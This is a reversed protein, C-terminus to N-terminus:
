AIANRARLRTFMENAFLEGHNKLLERVGTADIANVSHHLNVTMNGGGGSMTPVTPYVHGPVTPVFLEPRKEGVVFAQGPTVDGGGQLGGAIGTIFGGIPGGIAGGLAMLAKMLLLKAIAQIIAEEIQQLVQIFSGRGTVIFRALSATFGDMAHAAETGFIDAISKGFSTMRPAVVGFQQDILMVERAFEDASIKGADFALKIKSVEFSARGIADRLDEHVKEATKDEDTLQRTPSILDLTQRHLVDTASGALNLASDLERMQKELLKNSVLLDDAAESMERNVGGRTGQEGLTSVTSRKATEEQILGLQRHAGALEEVKKTLFDVRAANDSSTGGYNRLVGIDRTLENATAALTDNYKKQNETSPTIDMEAEAASLIRLSTNARELAAATKDSAGTWDYFQKVKETFGFKLLKDAKDADKDLSAALEGARKNTELIQEALTNRPAGGTLKSIEDDLKLNEIELAQSALAAKNQVEQEERSFKAAQESAKDFHEVVKAIIGVLAVAGLIPFASAMVSGIPAVSAILTSVARPMHVGFEEGLLMVGHRAEMMSYNTSDFASSINKASSTATYAAKNLGESFSATNVNLDVLLSGLVNAM